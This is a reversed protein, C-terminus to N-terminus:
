PRFEVPASRCGRPERCGNKQLRHTDNGSDPTGILYKFPDRMRKQSDRSEIRMRAAQAQRQAPDPAGTV